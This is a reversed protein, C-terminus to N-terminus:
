RKVCKGRYYHTGKACKVSSAGPKAPCSPSRISVSKENGTKEQARAANVSNAASNCQDVAAGMANNAADMQREHTDVEQEYTQNQCKFQLCNSDDIKRQAIDRANKAVDYQGRAKDHSAMAGDFADWAKKEALQAPSRLNAVDAVFNDPECTIKYNDLKHPHYGPQCDVARAALPLSALALVAAFRAAARM